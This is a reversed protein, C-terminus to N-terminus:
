EIRELDVEAVDFRVLEGNRVVARIDDAQESYSSEEPGHSGSTRGDEEDVEARTGIRRAKGRGIESVKDEQEGEREASHLLIQNQGLM